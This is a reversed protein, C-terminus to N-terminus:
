QEQLPLEDDKDVDTPLIKHVEPEQENNNTNDPAFHEVSNFKELHYFGDYYSVVSISANDLHRDIQFEPILAHIMNRITMGHCVVLINRGTERHENILKILGREVRTWFTLYDEAEHYPDMAKMGNLEEIVSKDNRYDMGEEYGLFKWLNEWTETADMGEFSGFFIERFEPMAVVPPMEEKHQNENVIIQATEFTRRLDSCYVADFKVDALGVGSRAVDRKGRNTLPTDSWGQMRHYKNLYTEGHRMFYFTVGKSM